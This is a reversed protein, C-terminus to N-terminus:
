WRSSRGGQKFAALHNKSADRLRTFVSKVLLAVIAGPPSLL